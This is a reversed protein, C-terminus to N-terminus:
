ESLYQKETEWISNLYLIKDLTKVNIWEIGYNINPGKFSKILKWVDFDCQELIKSKNNVSYKELSFMPDTKQSVRTNFDCYSKYCQYILM